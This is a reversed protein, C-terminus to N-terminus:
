RPLNEAIREIHSAMRDATLLRNAARTAGTERVRAAHYGEAREESMGVPADAPMAQWQGSPMSVVSARPPVPMGRTVIGTGRIGAAATRRDHAADAAREREVAAAVAEITRAHREAQRALKAATSRRGRHAGM